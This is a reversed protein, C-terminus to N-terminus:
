NHPWHVFRRTIYRSTFHALFFFSKKKLKFQALGVHNVNSINYKLSHRVLYVNPPVYDYLSIDYSYVYRRTLCM